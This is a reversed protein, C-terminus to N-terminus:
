LRHDRHRAPIPPPASDEHGSENESDSWSSSAHRADQTSSSHRDQSSTSGLNRPLPHYQIPPERSRSAPPVGHISTFPREHLFQSPTLGENALTESDRIPLRAPTFASPGLLSDPLEEMQQGFTEVEVHPRAQIHGLMAAAQSPAISRRGQSSLGSPRLPSRRPLDPPPPLSPAPAELQFGDVLGLEGDIRSRNQIIKFVRTVEVKECSPQEKPIVELTIELLRSNTDGHFPNNKETWPLLPVKAEFDVQHIKKRKLTGLHLTLRIGSGWKTWVSDLGDDVEPVPIQVNQPRATSTNKVSMCFGLTVQELALDFHSQLNLNGEITLFNSEDRTMDKLTAVTGQWSGAHKGYATTTFAPLRMPDKFSKPGLRDRDSALQLEVSVGQAPYERKSEVQQLNPTGSAADAHAQHQARQEDYQLLGM